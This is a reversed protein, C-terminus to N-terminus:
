WGSWRIFLGISWLLATAFWPMTTLALMMTGPSERPSKASLADEASSTLLWKWLYLLFYFLGGGLFPAQMLITLMAWNWWGGGPLAGSQLVHVGITFVVANFVVLVVAIRLRRREREIRAPDVASFPRLASSLSNAATTGREVAAWAEMEAFLGACADAEATKGVQRFVLQTTEHFPRLCQIFRAQDAADLLCNVAAVAQWAANVATEAQVWDQEAVYHQALRRQYHWADEPSLCGKDLTARLCAIRAATSESSPLRYLAFLVTTAVDTFGALFACQELTPLLADAAAADGRRAALLAHRGAVRGRGIIDEKRQLVADLDAYIAEAADFEGAAEHDAADALRAWVNAVFPLDPLIARAELVLERAREADGLDRWLNASGVLHSAEARRDGVAQWLPRLLRTTRLESLSSAAADNRWYQLWLAGDTDLAGGVVMRLPAANAVVGIANAAAFVGWYLGGPLFICGLVGAATLVLNAAVGGAAFLLMKRRGISFSPYEVFTYGVEVQRLCCYVRAGAIPIVFLPRGLGVGVSTVPFGVWLAALAHGLEHFVIAVHIAVTFTVACAFLTFAVDGM